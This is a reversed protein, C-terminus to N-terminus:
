IRIVQVRRTIEEAPILEGQNCGPCEAAAYVEFVRRRLDNNM